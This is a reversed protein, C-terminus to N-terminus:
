GPTVEFLVDGLRVQSGAGGGVTSV